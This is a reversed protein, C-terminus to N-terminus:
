KIYYVLAIRLVDPLLKMSEGEALRTGCTICKYQGFNIYEYAIGLETEISLRKGAMWQWGLAIGAGVNWGQYRSEMLLGPELVGFAKGDVFGWPLMGGWNFQGGNASVALFFGNFRHCSWYRLEPRVRWYKMKRNNQFTWPNYAGYFELTWKNGLACELGLNLTATSLEVLDTKVAFRGAPNRDPSYIRDYEGTNMAKFPPVSVSSPDPVPYEKGGDYPADLEKRVENVEEAKYLAVPAAGIGREERESAVIYIVDGLVTYTFGSGKLIDELESAGSSVFVKDTLTSSYAITKGSRQQYAQLADTLTMRQQAVASACSFLLVIFIYIGRRM